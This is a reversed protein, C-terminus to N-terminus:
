LAGAVEGAGDISILEAKAVDGVWVEERRGDESVWTLIATEPPGVPITTLLLVHGAPVTTGDKLLIAFRPVM